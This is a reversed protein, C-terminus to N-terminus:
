SRTFREKYDNNDADILVDGNESHVYVNSQNLPIICGEWTVKVEADLDYKLLEDVLEHVKM